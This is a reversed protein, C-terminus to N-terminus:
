EEQLKKQSRHVSVKVASVSMDLEDAVEQATYGYIRMKEFIKRPKGNLKDLQAEIDKLEGAHKSNTVAEGQLTAENLEVQMNGRKAYHKRLYDAKRFGIIAMLWPRFPREASYTALSKHVSLLVEQTIDDVWDPNALRTILYKKIFGSIERLLTAYARKDGAQALQALARWEDDSDIQTPGM